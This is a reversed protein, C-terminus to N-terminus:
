IIYVGGGGDIKSRLLYQRLGYHLSPNQVAECAKWSKSMLRTLKSNNSSSMISKNM